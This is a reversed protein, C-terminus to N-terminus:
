VQGQLRAPAVAATVSNWHFYNSGDLAIMEHSLSMSEKLWLSHLPSSSFLLDQGTLTLSFYRLQQESLLKVTKKGHNLMLCSFLFPDISILSVEDHCSASPVLYGQHILSVWM